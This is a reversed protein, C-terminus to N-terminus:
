LLHEAARADKGRTDKTKNGETHNGDDRIAVSISGTMETGQLM